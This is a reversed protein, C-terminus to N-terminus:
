IKNIVRKGPTNTEITGNLEAKIIDLKKILMNVSTLSICGKLEIDSPCMRNTSDFRFFNEDDNIQNSSYIDVKQHKKLKCALQDIELKCIDTKARDYASKADPMDNLSCEPTKM